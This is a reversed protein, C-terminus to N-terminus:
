MGLNGLCNLASAANSTGFAACCPQARAECQVVNEGMRACQQTVFTRCQGVQKKCKQRAKKKAKKSSKDASAIAPAAIVVLAAGVMGRWFTRRATGTALLSSIRDFRRTDM